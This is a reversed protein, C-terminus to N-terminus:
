YFGRGSHGMQVDACYSDKITHHKIESQSTYRATIDHSSAKINRKYTVRLTLQDLPLSPLKRVLLLNIHHQIFLLLLPIYTRKENKLHIQWQHENTERSRIFTPCLITTFRWKRTYITISQSLWIKDKLSQLQQTQGIHQLTLLLLYICNIDLIM